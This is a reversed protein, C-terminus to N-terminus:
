EASETGEVQEAENEQETAETEVTQTFANTFQIKALLKEDVTWEDNEQWGSITDSYLTDQREKIINERNKETAEKDSESDLRAIYYGSDTSILSTMQDKKLKDLAEKVSAELATDDADYTGTKAEYGKEEAVTELDKPDEVAEYIEQATAKIEELEEDSYEEYGETESNYYSTTSLTVMTYARMNAEEDSVETDATAYIADQMKQQITYLTLMEEVIEQTVDLERIVEKSNDEMFKKAVDAIAKKEDDTITVSYESMHAKLTYMEHINEMVDAKVSEQFTSGNGYLDQQWADEGFYSRFAEDSTVQQYRCMFNAVGLSVSQGQMTAITAETNLGCGGLVSAMMAGALCLAVIKKSKM